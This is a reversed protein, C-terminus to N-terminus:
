TGGPKEQCKRYAEVYDDQFGPPHKAGTKIPLNLIMQQLKEPAKDGGHNEKLMYDRAELLRELLLSRGDRAKVPDSVVPGGALEQQAIRQFSGGWFLLAVVAGVTCSFVIFGFMIGYRQASPMDKLGFASLLDDLSSVHGTLTTLAAQLKDWDSAPSSQDM